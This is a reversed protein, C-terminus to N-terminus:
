VRVKDSLSMMRAIRSEMRAERERMRRQAQVSTKRQAWPLANATQERRQIGYKRLWYLPTWKSVGYLEAIARASLREDIYHRRLENADIQRMRTPRGTRRALPIGALQLLRPVNHADFGTRESIDVVSMTQDVYWQRLLDRWNQETM